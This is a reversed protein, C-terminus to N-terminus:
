YRYDANCTLCCQLSIVFHFIEPLDVEDLFRKRALRKRVLAKIFILYVCM